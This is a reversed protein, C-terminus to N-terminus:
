LKAAVSVSATEVLVANLTKTTVMSVIAGAPAIMAVATVLLSLETVMIIIKCYWQKASAPSRISIYSSDVSTTVVDDLKIVGLSASPVWANVVVSVMELPRVLAGDDGKLTM